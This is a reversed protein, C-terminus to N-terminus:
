ARAGSSSGTEPMPQAEEETRFSRKVGVIFLLLGAAGLALKLKSVGAEAKGRSAEVVARPNTTEMVM